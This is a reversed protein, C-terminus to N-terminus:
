YVEGKPHQCEEGERYFLYLCVVSGFEGIDEHGPDILGVGELLEEFSTTYPM